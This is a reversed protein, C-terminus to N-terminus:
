SEYFIFKNSDLLENNKLTHIDKISCFKHGGERERGISLRSPTRGHKMQDNRKAM